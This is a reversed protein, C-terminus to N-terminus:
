HCVGSRARCRDCLAAGKRDTDALSNSFCMVCHHDACHGLGVVHGWEHVAETLARKEFLGKDAPMGYTEQRLRYLSIVCARGEPHAEGCVFNLRPVYLDVDAVGIRVAEREEIAAEIERLLDTSLYQGRKKTYAREPLAHM